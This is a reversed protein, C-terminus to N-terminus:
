SARCILRALLPSRAGQDGGRGRIM